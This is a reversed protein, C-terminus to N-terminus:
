NVVVRFGVTGQKGPALEGRYSWRIHTFESIGAPRPKGDQGTVTLKDAAAWTKGGDASYPAQTTEGSASGGLVPPNAPVPNVININGAGRKGTNRFTSTYIVEMGPVAKQAIVRKKETKGEPTKVEQEIEAINRFEIDGGAPQAHAGTWAALALVLIATTYLFRSQM